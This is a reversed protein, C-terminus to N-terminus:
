RKILKLKKRVDDPTIKINMASLITAAREVLQANTALKGYELYINDELGVRM